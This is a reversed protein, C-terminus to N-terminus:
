VIEIKLITIAVDLACFFADAVLRRALAPAFLTVASVSAVLASGAIVIVRITFRAIAAAYSGCGRDAIDFSFARAKLVEGSTCAVLAARTVVLERFAQTLNESQVLEAPTSVKNKVKKVSMEEVDLM